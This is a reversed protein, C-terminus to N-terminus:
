RVVSLYALAARRLEQAQRPSLGARAGARQLLQQAVSEHIVAPVATPLLRAFLAFLAYM